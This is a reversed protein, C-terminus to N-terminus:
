VIEMKHLLFTANTSQAVGKKITYDFLLENNEIHSEFSYNVVVDPFEQELVGLALDHTAIFAVCPKQVLKRIVAISGELKEKSNTGKLMEDIFLLSPVAHHEMNDMITKLRKLEAYFYSTQDKLSDSIRMSSLLNFPTFEMHKAPVPLGAMGCLTTLGVTRLFTSKGSMNSGTIIFVKSQENFTFTNAVRKDSRILPHMLETAEFYLERASLTPYTHTPNAYAYAGLSVMAELQANQHLWQLVAEGHQEKWKEIRWVCILDFLFLSNLVLGIMTNLRQDFIAVLKALKLLAQKNRTHYQKLENLLPTQFTTDSVLTILKSVQDLGQKQKGVMSHHRNSNRLQTGVLLWNLSVSVGLLAYSGSFALIIGALSALPVLVLAATYLSQHFLHPPQALWQTLLTTQAPIQESLASLVRYQLLFEPNSSLEAIAQQRSEIETRQQKPNLLVKALEEEALPTETRNLLQFLSGEGFLDLDFAFPHNVDLYALGTETKCFPTTESHTIRLQTEHYRLTYSLQAHYSLLRAFAIVILLSIGWMFTNVAIALYISYLLMGFVILRAYTVRNLQKRTAAITQESETQHQRYFSTFTM